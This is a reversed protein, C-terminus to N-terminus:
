RSVDGQSCWISRDSSDIVVARVKNFRVEHDLDTIKGVSLLNHRLQPVLFTNTVTLNREQGECETSIHATGIGLIEATKNDALHLTRGAASTTSEFLERQACMHSTAGSDICWTAESPRVLLACESIMKPDPADIVKAIVKAIFTSESTSAAVNENAAARARAQARIKTKCEHELHGNRTCYNCTKTPQQTNSKPKGKAPGTVPKKPKPKHRSNAILASAASDGKATRAMHEETIKIRLAESSPLVDRSEIAVRFNEYADPLSYLLTISLLEDNIVIELKKLKDVADFFSRLHDNPDGNDTMKTMLLSKMLTAKRAPGHSEHIDHLKLWIERSTKCGKLRKLEEPKIALLLDSQAKEDQRVWAAHQAASDANGAIINPKERAGSVYDWTDYRILIARAHIKWTDFNEHGLKEIQYAHQAM